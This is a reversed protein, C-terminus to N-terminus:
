ISTISRNLNTDNAQGVQHQINSIAKGVMMVWEKIAPEEAYPKLEPLSDKFNQIKLMAHEIRGSASTM